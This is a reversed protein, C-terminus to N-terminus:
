HRDPFESKISAFRQAPTPDPEVGLSLHCTDRIVFQAHYVGIRHFHYSRRLLIGISGLSIGTAAVAVMLRRVTFRLLRM